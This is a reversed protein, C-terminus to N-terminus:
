ICRLSSLYSSPYIVALHGVPWSWKELGLITIPNQVVIEFWQNVPRKLVDPGSKGPWDISDATGSRFLAWLACHGYPRISRRPRHFTRRRRSRRGGRGWHWRNRRSPPIRRPVASWPKASTFTEIVQVKEVALRLSPPIQRAPKILDWTPIPKYATCTCVHDFNEHQCCFTPVKSKTAETTTNRDPSRKWYMQSLATRKSRDEHFNSKRWSKQFLMSHDLDARILVNDARIYFSHTKKFHKKPLCLSPKPISPTASRWLTEMAQLFSWMARNARLSLGALMFSTESENFPM